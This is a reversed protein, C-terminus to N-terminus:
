PSEESWQLRLGDHLLHAGNKVIVDGASLGDVIELQNDTWNNAKVPTKFAKHEVVKFVYMENGDSLVTQAPLLIREAQEIVQGAKVVQGPMWQLDPNDIVVEVQVAGTGQDTLPHIRAVVGDRTDDYLRVQVIQGKKWNAVAHDPVPLLVKLKDIQGVTYAAQAPAILEGAHVGKNLVIGSIPAKLVTKSLALEAEQRALLAQKHQSSAQSHAAEAQEKNAVAAQKASEAQRVAAEAAEREEETAGEEMLSLANNADELDKAANSLALQAEELERLPILGESYLTRLRAADTELKNFADQAREVQNRAQELNQQRAGKLLKNLSAAASTLQADASAISAESAAISAAAQNMAYEAAAISSGAKQLQLEHHSRELRSLAQGRYVSDGVDVSAEEVLGSTEFSVHVEEYAQLTGALTLDASIPTKSVSMVSVTQVPEAAEEKADPSAALWATASGAIIISGILAFYVARKRM